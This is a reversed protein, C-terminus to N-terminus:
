RVCVCVCVCLFLFFVLRDIHPQPGSLLFLSSGLFPLPM